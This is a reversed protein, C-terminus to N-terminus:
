MGGPPKSTSSLKLNEASPITGDEQAKPSSSSACNKASPSPLVVSGGRSMNSARCGSQQVGGGNDGYKDESSSEEDSTSKESETFM